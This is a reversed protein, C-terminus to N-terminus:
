TVEGLFGEALMQDVRADIRRYLTERDAFHLGYLVAGKDMGQARNRAHWESLPVGTAAHVELARIM